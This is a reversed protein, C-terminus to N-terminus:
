TVVTVKSAGSAANLAASMADAARTRHNDPLLSDYDKPNNNERMMRMNNAKMYMGPSHEILFARDSQPVNDGNAIRMAIETAININDFQGGQAQAQERAQERAENSIVLAFSQESHSQEVIEENESVAPPPMVFNHTMNPNIKM